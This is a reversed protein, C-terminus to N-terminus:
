NWEVLGTGSWHGFSTLDLKPRDMHYWIDLMNWLRIDDFIFLCKKKFSIKSFHELFLYEQRGDKLADMFIIDAQELLSGYKLVDEKKTLDDTFQVLSTGFDTEKLITDPFQHWPIIDFTYITSGAPLFKKMCLSSYGLHTGLEIVVKPQTKEVISALLKYHEGPYIDIYNTGTKIRSSIDGLDKSFAAQACSLGLSILRETPKGPQGEASFLASYRKDVANSPIPMIEQVQEEVGKKRKGFM